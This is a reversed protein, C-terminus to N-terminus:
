KIRGDLLPYPPLQLMQWFFALIASFNHPYQTYIQKSFQLRNGVGVM